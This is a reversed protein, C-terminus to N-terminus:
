DFAEVTHGQQRIEREVDGMINCARCAQILIDETRRIGVETAKQLILARLKSACLLIDDTLARMEAATYGLQRGFETWQDQGHRIVAEYVPNREPVAVTGSM